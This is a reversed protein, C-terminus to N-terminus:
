SPVAVLADGTQTAGELLGRNHDSVSGGVLAEHLLEDIVWAELLGRDVDTPDVARDLRAAEVLTMSLNGEQCSRDLAVLM